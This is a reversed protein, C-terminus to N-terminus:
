SAILEFFGHRFCVLLGSISNDVACRGGGNNKVSEQVTDKFPKHEVKWVGKYLAM